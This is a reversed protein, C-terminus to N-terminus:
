NPSVALRGEKRGYVRFHEIAALRKEEYPLKGFAINLDPNINPDLYYSLDFKSAVVAFCPGNPHDVKDFNIQVSGFGLRDLVALLDQKYIWYSYSETGGCFGRWGLAQGYKQRVTRVQVGKFDRNQTNETDWKGDILERRARPSWSEFDDDFYHTWLFINDTNKAIKELLLVPDPMHYLVGCAVVAKFYRSNLDMKSFDGLLFKAQLGLFNKVTLCRLFAGYNGEISLVQAGAKELLFTHAAELPGLELIDENQIPGLEEILWQIREDNFGDFPGTNDINPIKTSWCTDFLDFPNEENPKLSTYNSLYDQFQIKNRNRSPSLWKLIMLKLDKIFWFYKQKLSNNKLSNRLFFTNIFASKRNVHRKPINDIAVREKNDESTHCKFFTKM